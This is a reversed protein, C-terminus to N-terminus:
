NAIEFNHSAILIAISLFRIDYIALKHLKIKQAVELFKDPVVTSFIVLM